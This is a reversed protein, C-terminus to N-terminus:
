LRREKIRATQIDAPFAGKLLSLNVQVVGHGDGAQLLRGSGVAAGSIFLVAPKRVLKVLLGVQTTHQFELRCGLRHGQLLHPM